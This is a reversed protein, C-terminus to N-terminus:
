NIGDHDNQTAGACCARVPLDALCLLNPLGAHAQAYYCGPLLLVSLLGGLSSLCLRPIRRSIAGCPVVPEAVQVRAILPSGDSVAVCKTSSRVICVRM